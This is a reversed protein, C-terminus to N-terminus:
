ILKLKKLEISVKKPVAKFVDVINPRVNRGKLFDVVNTGSVAKVDVRIKKESIREIRMRIKRKKVKRRKKEVIEMEIVKREVPVKKQFSLIASYTCEFRQSKVRRVWEREVVKLGSVEIKKSKNIKRRIEKIKIKRKRPKVLEIVFPRFASCIIETEERGAAHFKTKKCKTAKVLPREIIEQVSTKSLKGTGKCELCGKGGCKKCILKTQPIKALKRYKGYVYISKVQLSIGEKNLDVIITLDPDKPKFKKKLKRSIIKGLERTIEERISEVFEVGIEEFAKEERILMTETPVCGVLFTEFEYDKVKKMIKEAYSQIEKSFFGSCFYCKKKPPIKQKFNMFKFGSFNSLDVEFREGSDILLAIFSRIIRGREKNSLGTLLQASILRGLCNDCIPRKLLCIIRELLKM